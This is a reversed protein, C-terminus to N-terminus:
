IKSMNSSSNLLNLMKEINYYDIKRKKDYFDNM